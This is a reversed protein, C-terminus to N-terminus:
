GRLIELELELEDRLPIEHDGIEPIEPKLRARAADVAGPRLARLRLGRRQYWRIADVNDNTTVLWLRRCGAAAARRRAEGVVGEGRVDSHFTLVECEDGHVVYTLVAVVTGDGDVALLQPHEIPRLVEGRRAVRLSHWRELFPEVAPVDAPERPRIEFQMTGPLDPSPGIGVIRAAM